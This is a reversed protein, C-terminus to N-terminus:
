SGEVVFAVVSRQTNVNAIQFVYAGPPLDLADFRVRHEGATVTGDVLEAIERGLVDWLTLRVRGTVPVSYVVTASERFPNPFISQIDIGMSRSAESDDAFHDPEVSTAIGAVDYHERFFDDFVDTLVQAYFERNAESDRIGVFPAEIMLGDITGGNMSGHRRPSYSGWFFPNGIGPDPQASSPVASIGAMEFLTGLSKPGRILESFTLSSMEALSRISSSQAFGGADLEADTRRLNSGSVQYDLELRLIPHGHGHLDVYMGKGHQAAISDRAEEIFGHYENWAQEAWVNGQAAEVIERNPDLKTRKLKSIVVHPYRGTLSFMAERAAHAVAATNADTVTTGFTRDPIEAPVLSGGHPASFVIPLDGAWYEVYQNRGYYVEGPLHSQAAVTAFPVSLACLVITVVFAFKNTRTLPIRLTSRPMDDLTEQGTDDRGGPAVGTKLDVDWGHWPCRM